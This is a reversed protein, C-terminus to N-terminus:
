EMPQHDRNGWNPLQALYELQSNAYSPPQPQTAIASPPTPVNELEEMHHAQPLLCDVQVQRGMWESISQLRTYLDDFLLSPPFDILCERENLTVVHHPEEHMANARM